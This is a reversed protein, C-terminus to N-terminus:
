PTKVEQDAIVDLGFRDLYEVYGPVLDADIRGERGLRELTQKLHGLQENGLAVTKLQRAVREVRASTAARAGPEDTPKLTVKRDQPSSRPNFEARVRGLPEVKGDVNVRLAVPIALEDDYASLASAYETALTHELTRHAELLPEILNDGLKEFRSELAARRSDLRQEDLSLPLEVIRGTPECLPTEAWQRFDDEYMQYIHEGIVKLKREYETMATGLLQDYQSRVLFVNEVTKAFRQEIEEAFAQVRETPEKAEHLLRIVETQVLAQAMRDIGVDLTQFGRLSTDNITGLNSNTAVLQLNAAGLQANTTVFQELTIKKTQQQVDLLAANGSKLEHLDSRLGVNMERVAGEVNAMENELKQVHRELVNIERQLPAVANAIQRDVYGESVGGGGSM